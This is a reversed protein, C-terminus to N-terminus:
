LDIKRNSPNETHFYNEGKKIYINEKGTHMCIRIEKIGINYM